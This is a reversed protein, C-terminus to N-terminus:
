EALERRGERHGRIMVSACVINTRPPGLNCNFEPVIKMRPAAAAVQAMRAPDVRWEDIDVELNVLLFCFSFPSMLSLSSPAVM